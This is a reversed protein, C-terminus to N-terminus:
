RRYPPTLDNRLVIARLVLCMNIPSWPKPLMLWELNAQGGEEMGPCTATGGFAGLNIDAVVRRGVLEPRGPAALAEGVFEHGPVGAFGMYGRLLELDTNCVGALRVRILAEDPGPEPRTRDTLRAAGLEELRRDLGATITNFCTKM